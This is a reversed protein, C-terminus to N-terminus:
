TWHFCLYYRLDLELFVVCYIIMGALESVGLELGPVHNVLLLREILAGRSGSRRRLRPHISNSGFYPYTARFYTLEV